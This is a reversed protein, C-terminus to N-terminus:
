LFTFHSPDYYQFLLHFHKLFMKFNSIRLAFLSISLITSAFEDLVSTPLYFEYRLTIQSFQDSRLAHALASTAMTSPMIKREEDSDRVKRGSLLCSPNQFKAHAGLYCFSSSELSFRIEPVGAAGGILGIKVPFHAIKLYIGSLSIM